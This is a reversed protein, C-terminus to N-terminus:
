CSFAHACLLPLLLAHHARFRVMDLVATESEHDFLVTGWHCFTAHTPHAVNQFLRLKDVVFDYKRIQLNHKAVLFHKLLCAHQPQTAVHTHALIASFHVHAHTSSRVYGNLHALSTMALAALMVVTCM